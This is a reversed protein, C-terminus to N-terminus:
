LQGLSAQNKMTRQSQWRINIRLNVMGNLLVEKDLKEALEMKHEKNKLTIIVEVEYDVIYWSGSLWNTM